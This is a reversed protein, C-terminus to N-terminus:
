RSRDGADPQTPPLGHAVGLVEDRIRRALRRPSSGLTDLVLRAQAYVPERLALLRRAEALPDQVQLLPRIRGRGQAIRRISEEPSIRLWVSLTGAPLGEMRGPAATPWGGGTAILIQDRKLLDEMVEHELARFGEEGREKFLAPIGKGARREVEQDADIATWRLLGAVERSVRSKGAGMFGVLVVRRWPEADAGPPFDAASAM